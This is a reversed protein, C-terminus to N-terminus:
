PLTHSARVGAGSGGSPTWRWQQRPLRKVDANVHALVLADSAEDRTGQQFPMLAKLPAWRQDELVGPVAEMGQNLAQLGVGRTFLDKHEHLLGPVIVLGQQLVQEVQVDGDVKEM